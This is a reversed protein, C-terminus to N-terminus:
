NFMGFTNTRVYVVDTRCIIIYNILIRRFYYNLHIGSDFNM